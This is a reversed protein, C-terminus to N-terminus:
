RPFITVPLVFEFVNSGKANGALQDDDFLHSVRIGFSLPYQNWWKTDVYCEVGASRLDLHQQKNDSYLRQMDYFVNARFRQLYLINGFGWDPYFLPLHYNASARWLRSGAHTGYYDEYGRANAIRSSFLLYKIDREQFAGTLVLNHTAFAGPLYFAASGYVQYGNYRTLPHRLAGSLSYGLRPYIHQVASQVQESWSISHSL